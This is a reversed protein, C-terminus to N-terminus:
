LLIKSMNGAYQKVIPDNVLIQNNRSSYLWDLPAKQTGVSGSFSNSDKLCFSFLIFFNNILILGHSVFSLLLLIFIININNLVLITKSILKFFYIKRILGKESIGWMINGITENVNGILYGLVFIMENMNITLWFM